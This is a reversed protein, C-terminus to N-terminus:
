RGTLKRVIDRLDGRGSPVALYGAIYAVCGAALDLGLPVARALGPVGPPVEPRLGALRLVQWAAVLALGGALPAAMTRRMWLGPRIGLVRAVYVGPIVLNSFLTTLVTGWIVGALGIRTTLVYSLPLNVLAGGLAAWAIVQVRGLGIAMQVLVAIV